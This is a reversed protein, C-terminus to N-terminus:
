LEGGKMLGRRWLSMKGNRGGEGTGDILRWRGDKQCRQEPYGAKDGNAMSGTASARRRRGRVIEAAGVALPFSAGGM